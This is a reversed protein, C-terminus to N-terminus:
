HRGKVLGAVLAAAHVTPLEGALFRAYVQPHDRQLRAVQYDRGRQQKHTSVVSGKKPRGRRPATGTAPREFVWLWSQNKRAHHQVQLPGRGPTGTGPTMLQFYDLAVFGCREAATRVEAHSWCQRGSEIEDKGKVWLQGGGPRLVRWAELIGTAYFERLIDAHYMGKSTEHNRYLRNMALAPGPNHVYPPDFVVVDFAAARYPLAEFRAALLRPAAAVFLPCQAGRRIDRMKLDSGVLTFGSTDVKPWFLGQGYTIDAVVKGALAYRPVKVVEAILDANKGVVTTLGHRRPAQPPADSVLALQTMM